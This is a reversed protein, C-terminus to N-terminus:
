GIVIRMSAARSNTLVNKAFKLYEKLGGRDISLPLVLLYTEKKLNKPDIEVDKQALTHM